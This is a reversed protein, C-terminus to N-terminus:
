RDQSGQSKKRPREQSGSARRGGRREQSGRRQRDHNGETESGVIKFDIYGKRASTAVLEVRVKQGVKGGKWGQLNGEVPLSLLRVWTNGDKNGTVLGDFEEGIKDDLLLAAAAKSCTREVKAVNDQMESCSNAIDDLETSTYPLPQNLLISRVMRQTVLDPYRRNPATSHTYDVVALGFHGIGEEDEPTFIYEGRGMLKIITLSLDPFTLPDAVRREALFRRLAKNDVASPLSCGFENALDRIKEWREPEKVVRQISPAHHSRLFRSTVGNATLMFNEILKQARNQGSCVLDVVTDGDWIVDAQLSEFELAGNKRRMELISRAVRDQLKITEALYESNQANALAPPMEGGKLWVSVSPYALKAHNHVIALYVTESIVELNDPSAYTVDMIFSKRDEGPNLSTLGYSLETPLMPFVKAATYVSTTNHLAHEDLASKKAVLFDCDAVSILIRVNGNPLMEAATLQDIDRTDDNDISVWPLYKLDKYLAEHEPTSVVKGAVIEDVQARDVDTYESLLQHKTMLELALKELAERDTLGEWEADRARKQEQSEENGKNKKYHPYKQISKHKQSHSRKRGAKPPKM